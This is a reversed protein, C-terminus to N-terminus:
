TALLNRLFSEMIYTDKGDARDVEREKERERERERESFQLLVTNM